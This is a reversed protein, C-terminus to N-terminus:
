KQCLSLFLCVSSSRTLPLSLPLYLIRLLIWARFQWCLAQRLARVWLGQSWSRLRLWISLQGILGPVGLFGNGRIQCLIRPTVSGLFYCLDDSDTVEVAPYQIVCGLSSHDSVVVNLSRLHDLPAQTAWDTLCRVEAWTMIEPSTPKLGADPETSVAWLRSSAESETDGEREAGVACTGQRQREIIFM